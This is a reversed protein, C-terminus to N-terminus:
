RTAPAATMTIVNSKAFGPELPVDDTGMPVHLTWWITWDGPQSLPMGESLTQGFWAGPPLVMTQDLTGDFYVPWDRLFTLREGSPDIGGIGGSSDFNMPIRISGSSVNTVTIRLDPLRARVSVTDAAAVIEVKLPLPTALRQVLSDEGEAGATAPMGLLSGSLFLGIWAARWSM